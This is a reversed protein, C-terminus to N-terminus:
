AAKWGRITGIYSGALTVRLATIPERGDGSGSSLPFLKQSISHQKCARDNKDKRTIKRRNWM